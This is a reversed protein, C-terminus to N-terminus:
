KSHLDSNVQDLPNENKPKDYATKDFLTKGEEAEKQGDKQNPRLTISDDKEKMERSEKFARGTLNVINLTFPRAHNNIKQQAAGNM